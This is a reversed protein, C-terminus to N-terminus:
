GSSSSGGCHDAGFSVMSTAYNSQLEGKSSNLGSFTIKSTRVPGFEPTQKPLSDLECAVESDMSVCEAFLRDKLSDEAQM